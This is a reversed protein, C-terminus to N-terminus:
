FVGVDSDEAVYTDSDDILEFESVSGERVVLNIVQLGSLDAAKGTKSKFEWEYISYQLNVISGNGVMNPDLPHLHGDVVTPADKLDGNKFPTAKRKIVIFPEDTDKHKKLGGLGNDKWIKLVEKSPNIVNVTWAPSDGDYGKDPNNPDCKVWAVRANKIIAM